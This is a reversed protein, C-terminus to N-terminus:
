ASIEELFNKAKNFMIESEPFYDRYIPNNKFELNWAKKILDSARSHDNNLLYLYSNLGEQSGYWFYIMFKNNEGM